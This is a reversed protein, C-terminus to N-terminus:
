IEEDSWGGVEANKIADLFGDDEIEEDEQTEAELKKTQARLKDLQAKQMDTADSYHKDLWKLAFEKSILKVSVGEKGQKVEQILTGDVECSERLRVFNKKEKLLEKDGNSNEIKIPGYMSMVLTEEQGFELYDTVDSYAIDMMKQFYDEATYMSQKIKADKISQIHTQIKPNSLLKCGNVMATTYDCGYAKQYAKTANFWRVYYLCFLRQKETLEENNLTEIEEPLLETKLQGDIGKSKKTVNRKRNTVNGKLEEDWKDQSKWKRVQTDKVDLQAAIDKLLMKGKSSIYMDKAKDRNPSRQRPM